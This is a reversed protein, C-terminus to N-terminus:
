KLAPVKEQKKLFSLVELYAKPGEKANPVGRCVIRDIENHLYTPNARVKNHINFLALDIDDGDKEISEFSHEHKLTKEPDESIAPLDANTPNFAGGTAPGPAPKKM